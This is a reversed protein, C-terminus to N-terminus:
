YLNKAIKYDKIKPFKILKNSDKEKPLDSAGYPRKDGAIVTVEKYGLGHVRNKFDTFSSKLFGDEWRINEMFYLPVDWNAWLLGREPELEIDLNGSKQNGEDQFAFTPIIFSSRFKKGYLARKENQVKQDLIYHLFYPRIMNYGEFILFEDTRLYLGDAKKIISIPTKVSKNNEERLEAFPQNISEYGMGGLDMKIDAITERELSKVYTPIELMDGIDRALSRIYTGSTVKVRFKLEIPSVFSLYEYEIRVERSKLDVQKGRRILDSARKGKIKKASFDPPVQLNWGSLSALCDRLKNVGAGPFKKVQEDFPLSYFFDDDGPLQTGQGWLYEIIQNKEWSVLITGDPDLTDTRKGFEIRGTYVKDFGMLFATFATAKGFTCVLLGSAFKDLTGSHGLKFPKSIKRPVRQLDSGPIKYVPIEKRHEDSKQVLVNVPSLDRFDPRLLFKKLRGLSWASTEGPKKNLLIFGSKNQM